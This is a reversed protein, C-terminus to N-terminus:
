WLVRKGQTFGIPQAPGIRGDGDDLVAVELSRVAGVEVPEHLRSQQLLVHVGPVRLEDVLM